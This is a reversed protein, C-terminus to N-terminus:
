FESSKQQASRLHMKGSNNALPNFLSRPLGVEFEELLTQMSECYRRAMQM